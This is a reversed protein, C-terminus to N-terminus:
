VNSLVFGCGCVLRHCLVGTVLGYFSFLWLWLCLLEYFFRLPCIALWSLCLLVFVFFCFFSSSFPSFNRLNVLSTHSQSCPDSSSYYCCCWIQDLSFLLLVWIQDLSFFLLLLSPPTLSTSHLFLSTLTFNQSNYNLNM